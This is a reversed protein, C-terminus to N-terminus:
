RQNLLDIHSLNKYHVYEDKNESAKPKAIPMPAFMEKLYFEVEDLNKNLTAIKIGLTDNIINVDLEKRYEDFVIKATPYYKSKILLHIM